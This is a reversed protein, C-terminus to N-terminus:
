IGIAGDRILKNSLYGKNKICIIEKGSSLAIDIIALAEKINVVKGVIVIDSIYLLYYIKEELCTINKAYIEGNKIKGIKTYKSKSDKNISIKNNYLIVNYRENILHLIDTNNEIDIIFINLKSTLKKINGKFYLRQRTKIMVFIYWAFIINAVFNTRGYEVFIINGVM